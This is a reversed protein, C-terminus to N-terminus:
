PDVQCATANRFAVLGDPRITGCCSTVNTALMASPGLQQNLKSLMVFPTAMMM